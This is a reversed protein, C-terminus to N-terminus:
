RSSHLDPWVEGHSQGMKFSDSFLLFREHSPLSLSLMAMASGLWLSSPTVREPSSLVRVYCTLIPFSLFLGAVAITTVPRIASGVSGVPKSAEVFGRGTEVVLQIDLDACENDLTALYLDPNVIEIMSSTKIDGATIV